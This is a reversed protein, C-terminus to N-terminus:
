VWRCKGVSGVAEVHVGEGLLSHTGEARPPALAPEPSSWRDKGQLLQRGPMCPPYPTPQPAPVRGCGTGECQTTPVAVQWTARPSRSRTAPHGAPRSCSRLPLRQGPSTLTQLGNLISDTPQRGGAWGRREPLGWLPLVPRRRGPCWPLHCQGCVARRAQLTRLPPGSPCPSIYRRVCLEAM